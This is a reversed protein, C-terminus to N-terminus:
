RGGREQYEVKVCVKHKGKESTSTAVTVIPLSFESVYKVATTSCNNKKMQTESKMIFRESRCPTPSTLLTSSPTLTPIMISKQRKSRGDWGMVRVIRVELSWLSWGM